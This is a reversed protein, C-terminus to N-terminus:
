ADLVDGQLNRQLGSRLSVLNHALESMKSYVRGAGGDQGTESARAVRASAGVEVVVEEEEEEGGGSEKGHLAVGSTEIKPFHLGCQSTIRSVGPRVCGERAEATPRLSVRHPSNSIEQGRLFVRFEVEPVEGGVPPVESVFCVVEVSGPERCMSTFGLVGSALIMLGAASAGLRGDDEGDGVVEKCSRLKRGESDRLYVFFSGELGAYVVPFDTPTIWSTVANPTDSRPKMAVKDACSELLHETFRAHGSRGEGRADAGDVLDSCKLFMERVGGARQMDAVVAKYAAQEEVLSQSADEEASEQAEEVEAPARQMGIGGDRESVLGVGDDLAIACDDGVGAAGADVFTEEEEGRGGVEDAAEGGPTLTGDQRAVEGAKAGGADEAGAAVALRESDGGGAPRADGTGTGCEQVDCHPIWHRHQCPMRRVRAPLRSCDAAHDRSLGGTRNGYHEEFLDRHARVMAEIYSLESVNTQLWETHSFSRLKGLLPACGGDAVAVFYSCHWAGSEFVHGASADGGTRRMSRRVLSPGVAGFLQKRVVMKPGQMWADGFALHFGYYHMDAALFAPAAYGKCVRLLLVTARKPIEDVDSILIVDESLADPMGKLM